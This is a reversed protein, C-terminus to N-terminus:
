VLRAAIALLDVEPRESDLPPGTKRGRALAPVDLVPWWSVWRFPDGRNQAREINEKACPRDATSPARGRASLGNM